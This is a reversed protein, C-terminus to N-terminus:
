TCPWHYVRAWFARHTSCCERLNSQGACQCANYVGGGVKTTRKLSPNPAPAQGRGSHPVIRVIQTSWHACPRPRSDRLVSVVLGVIQSEM